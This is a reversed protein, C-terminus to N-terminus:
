HCFWLDEEEDSTKFISRGDQENEEVWEDCHEDSGSEIGHEGVYKSVWIYWVFWRDASQCKRGFPIMTRLHTLSHYNPYVRDSQMKSVQSRQYMKEFMGTQGWSLDNWQVDWDAM